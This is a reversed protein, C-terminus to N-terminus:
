LTPIQNYSYKKVITGLLDRIIISEGGLDHASCMYPVGPQQTINIEHKDNVLYVKKSRNIMTKNLEYPVNFLYVQGLYTYTISLTKKSQNLEVSTDYSVGYYNQIVVKVTNYITMYWKIRNHYKEGLYRESYGHDYLWKIIFMFSMIIVVTPVIGIYHIIWWQIYSVMLFPIFIQILDILKPM